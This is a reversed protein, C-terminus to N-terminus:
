EGAHAALMQRLEDAYQRRWARPEILEAGPGLWRLLAFVEACNDAGYTMRTMGGDDPEFRAHRYYWDRGLLTVQNQTLCITVPSEQMWQEMAPALWRRGMLSRVDFAPRAAGAGAHAEIDLVRDARWVQIEAKREHTEGALEPSGAGHMATGFAPHRRGVLYWRDRDWFMALPEAIIRQPLERYPSHYQMCVQRHDLIAQLFTGGARGVAEPAASVQNESSGAPEPHLLDPPPAEFGVIKDADALLQRLEDPLAALLKREATELESMLPRAQLSRWLAMGLVLAVAEGRSFMLPPLFYGPLLRFGGDVGREAYLPVGLASLADMDRYITRRTVEFQRALDGAAVTKGARLQLLIGLIRDFRIMPLHM